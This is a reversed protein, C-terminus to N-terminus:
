EEISAVAEAVTAVIGITPEVGAYRLADAVPSGPPVVLRLAQGRTRLRERLEFVVQIGASDFYQADTLDFVLGLAENSVQNGAATGIEQANSIDVEGAVRAVVIRGLTEFHIDALPIM